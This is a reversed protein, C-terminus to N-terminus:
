KLIVKRPTMVDNQEFTELCNFCCNKNFIKKSYYVEVKFIVDDCCNNKVEEGDYNHIDDIFKRYAHKHLIMLRNSMKRPKNQKDDCKCIIFMQGSYNKMGGCTYCTQWRM